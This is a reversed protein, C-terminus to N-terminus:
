ELIRVGHPTSFSGRMAKTSGQVFEVRPDDKLHGALTARLDDARPHAIELRILRVGSDPLVMPPTVECDWQMLSPFADDFPVKGSPPIAFRWKLDGRTLATPVGTFDPAFAAVDAELDDSRCIWSTIRPRGSFSDMDFWRPWAPPAVSPDASIVEFYLDGMGMVRNHTSMHTHKGGSALPVGLADEVFAVGEELTECTLAMHDFTLM